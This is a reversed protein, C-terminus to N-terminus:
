FGLLDIEFKLNSNAPISGSAKSGYALTPPLYITISGGIGILPLAQQWGAILNSLTFTQSNSQDFVSGNLLTGKYAIRINDCTTPKDGFVSDTIIYFFGRSDEKTTISNATLYDRLATVETAPAQTTNENCEKKKSCAQLFTFAVMSCIIIKKM